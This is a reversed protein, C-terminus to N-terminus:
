SCVCESVCMTQVTAEGVRQRQLVRFREEVEVLELEEESSGRGSPVAVITESAPIWEVDMRSVGVTWVGGQVVEEEGLESYTGYTRRPPSMMRVM